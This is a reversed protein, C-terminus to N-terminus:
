LASRAFRRAIAAGISDGAGVVAVSAHCQAAM